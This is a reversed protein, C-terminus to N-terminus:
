RSFKSFLVINHFVFVQFNIEAPDPLKKHCQKINLGLVSKIYFPEFVIASFITFPTKTLKWQFWVGALVNVAIVALHWV